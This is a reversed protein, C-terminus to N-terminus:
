SSKPGKLFDLAVISGQFVHLVWADAPELPIFEEPRYKSEILAQIARPIIPNHSCVLTTDSSKIIKRLFDIAEIENEEYLDFGISPQLQVQVGISQAFPAVTAACRHANSSNISTIGFPALSSILKQAQQLGFESLPRDSDPREWDGRDIATAHRLLVFATTDVETGRFIKMLERDDGYTLFSKSEKPTVWQIADIEQNPVFEPTPSVAQASWYKVLKKKGSEIYTVEGLFRGFHATCGTEERVERFACEFASENEEIIGKPFTWDDYKPRHVIAIEIEQGITRRWLIAGAARIM